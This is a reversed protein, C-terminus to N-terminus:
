LKPPNVNTEVGIPIMADEPPFSGVNQIAAGPQTETWIAFTYKQIPAGESPLLSSPLLIRVTPGAVQIMPSAIANTMGTTLDTITASNSQGYPGVTVTVLADPTIGPRSAFAPGLRSGAGRNLAFVISTTGPYTTFPGRVIAVLEINKKKLLVAGGANLSLTDHPQGTYGSQLNPTKFALGPVSYQTLTGAKFGAVVAGINHVERLALAVFEHGAGGFIANLIATRGSSATAISPQHVHIVLAAAPGPHAQFGGSSLLIKPELPEVLLSKSRAPTRRPM